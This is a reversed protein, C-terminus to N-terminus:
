LVFHMWSPNSVIKRGSITLLGLGAEAGVRLILVGDRTWFSKGISM